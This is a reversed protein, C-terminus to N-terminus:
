TQMKNINVRENGESTRSKENKKQLKGSNLWYDSISGREKPKM